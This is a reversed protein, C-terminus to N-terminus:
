RLPVKQTQEPPPFSSPSRHSLLPSPTSYREKTTDYLNQKRRGANEELSLLSLSPFSYLPVTCLIAVVRVLDVWEVAV